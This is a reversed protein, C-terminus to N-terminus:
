ARFRTEADGRSRRRPPEANAVTVADNAFREPRRGIAIAAGVGESPEVGADM